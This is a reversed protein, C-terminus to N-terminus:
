LDNVPGAVKTQRCQHVDIPVALCFRGGSLWLPGSRDLLDKVSRNVQKVSRIGGLRPLRGTQPHSMEEPRVEVAKLPRVNVLHM